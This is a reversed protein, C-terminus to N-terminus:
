SELSHLCALYYLVVVFSNSDAPSCLPFKVARERLCINGNAARRVRSVLVTSNATAETALAVVVCDPSTVCGMRIVTSTVRAHM